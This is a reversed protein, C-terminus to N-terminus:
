RLGEAKWHALADVLATEVDRMKIGGQQIRGTELICNSRPARAACRYFEEDDQWFEPNWEPRLFKKIMHVVERTSVYGSNVVNYAGGPLNSEWIQLCASVADGLHSLSNWNQYLRPYTLLKSLYNRPNNEPEFPLRLRWLYGTPFGLLIKEAVAKTGSYFSGGSEFTFNPADGEDFGRIRSSRAALLDAVDASNMDKRVTWSGDESQVKVGSYICGSSVSGLRVDAVDCAQAVTQALVVNGLITETRRTECADVNPQGTFGGCNIVLDPRHLRLTNSLVRFSTYDLDSRSIAKFSLKRRTLERQFARGVYGSAGLLFIM